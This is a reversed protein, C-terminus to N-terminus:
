EMLFLSRVMIIDVVAVNNAGAQFSYSAGCNVNASDYATQYSLLKSPDANHPVLVTTVAAIPNQLSDITRYLFQYSANLSIPTVSDGLIGNLDTEVARSAIVEGPQYDSINAPQAYFPDDQPLLVDARVALGLVAKTLSLSVLGQLFSRM